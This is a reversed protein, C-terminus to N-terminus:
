ARMLEGCRYSMELIEGCSERRSSGGAPGLGPKSAETEGAGRGAGPCVGPGKATHPYGPVECLKHHEWAQHLGEDRTRVHGEWSPSSVPVLHAAEVGTPIPISAPWARPETESRM